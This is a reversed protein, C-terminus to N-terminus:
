RSWRRSRSIVFFAIGALSVVILMMFPLNDIVVGTISVDKYTNTVVTANVPSISAKEILIKESGDLKVDFDGSGGYMESGTTSNNRTVQASPAYGNVVTEKVQYSSGVPLNLLEVYEGDALTITFSNGTSTGSTTGNKLYSIDTSGTHNSPFNVTIAFSFPLIKNSYDGVVTKSVKVTANESYTNVFKFESFDTYYSGPTPDVKTGTPDGADDLVQWVTIGAVKLGAGDNIVYVRITYEAQSYVIGTDSGQAEKVNYHYVGAHPFTLGTITPLFDATKKVIKNSSDGIDASTYAISPLTWAPNSGVNILAGTGDEVGLDTVTFGFTVGPAAVGAPITLEKTLVAEEGAKAGKADDWEDAKVSLATGGLMGVTMMLGLSFAAIRKVIKSLNKKKM